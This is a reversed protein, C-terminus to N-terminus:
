SGCRVRPMRPAKRDILSEQHGDGGLRVRIPPVRFRPRRHAPVCLELAHRAREYEGFMMEGVTYGGHSCPLSGGPQEGHLAALPTQEGIGRWVIVM